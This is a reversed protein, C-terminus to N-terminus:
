FNNKKKMNNKYLLLVASPEKKTSYSIKLNKFIGTKNFATLM